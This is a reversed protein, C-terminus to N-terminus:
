SAGDETARGVLAQRAAAREGPAAHSCFCRWAEWGAELYEGPRLQVGPFGRRLALGFLGVDTFVGDHMPVRLKPM